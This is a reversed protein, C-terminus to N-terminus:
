ASPLPHYTAIPPNLTYHSIFFQGREEVYQLHLQVAGLLLLKGAAKRLQPYGLVNVGKETM